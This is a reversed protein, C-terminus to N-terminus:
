GIRFLKRLIWRFFGIRKDDIRYKRTMQAYEEEYAFRM